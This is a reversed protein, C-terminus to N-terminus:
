EEITIVARARYVENGGIFLQILNANDGNPPPDIPGNGTKVMARFIPNPTLHATAGHWGLRSAMDSHQRLGGPPDASVWIYDPGGNAGFASSGTYEFGIVGNVDTFGGVGNPFYPPNVPDPFTDASPFHRFVVINSASLNDILKIQPIYAKAGTRLEFGVLAWYQEGENARDEGLSTDVDLHFIDQLQQFSTVRPVPELSPDDDARVDNIFIEAM